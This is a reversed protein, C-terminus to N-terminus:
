ELWIAGCSIISTACSTMTYPTIIVEDGAELGISMWALELGDTGNAVGVAYNSGTFDALSSEFDKVDKQMIYAGRSGIQEFINGLVGGSDKQVLSFFGHCDWNM